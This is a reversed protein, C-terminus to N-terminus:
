AQRYENSHVKISLGFIAIFIQIKLYKSLLKFIKVQRGAVLLERRFLKSAADTLALMQKDQTECEM